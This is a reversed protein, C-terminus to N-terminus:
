MTQTVSLKMFYVVLFMVEYWVTCLETNRGHELNLFYSIIQKLIFLQPNFIEVINGTIKCKM